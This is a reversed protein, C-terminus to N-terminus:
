MIKLIASVSNQRKIKVEIQQVPPCFSVFYELKMYKYVDSQVKYFNTFVKALFVM